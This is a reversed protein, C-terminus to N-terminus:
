RTLKKVVALLAGGKRVEFVVPADPFVGLHSFFRTSIVAYEFTLSSGRVDEESGFSYVDLDYRAGNYGSGWALINAEPAAHENIYEGAERYSTLWYDLEFDGEAGSVGGVFSNYYIYQYPHLAIVAVMGPLICLIPLAIKLISFKLSSALREIGIGALVFLPPLVFLFQRFNDYVNSHLFIQLGLPVVFWAVLVSAEMLNTRETRYLIVTMGFVALVLAPVTLQVCILFIVYYWPLNSAAINDGMFRVEANYPFDRMVRIAELFNYSPSDWLFPWTLLSFLAAIAGYVILTPVANGGKKSIAYVAVLIGAFPALLRISTAVGLIIAALFVLGALRANIGFGLKWDRGSKRDLYIKRGVTLLVALYLVIRELHFASAKHIYNEVPLRSNGGSLLLFIQGLVSGGPASYVATIGNSVLSHILDKGFYTVIYLGFFLALLVSFAPFIKSAPTERDEVHRIADSMYLGATVSALFITLFPIDKPNIFAHGFLLPQSEFLLVVFLATWPRVLRKALFYLSVLAVQFLVFNIFHWLDMYGWGKMLPELMNTFKWGMATYFPGYYRLDLFFIHREPLLPKGALGLAYAEYSREGYIYFSPEDWTQGYQDGILLAIVLNFVVLSVFAHIPKVGQMKTLM